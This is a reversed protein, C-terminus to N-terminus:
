ADPKPTLSLWNMSTPRGESCILWRDSDHVVDLERFSSLDRAGTRIIDTNFFRQAAATLKQEQAAGDPFMFAHMEIIMHARRLASLNEPTFLSFEAGEIDSLILCDKPDIGLGALVRPLNGDATGHIKVKNTVANWQATKGIAERGRDSTEFCISQECIGAAALGVGYYGDAAGLNIFYRFKGKLKAIAQLIEQEYLGFLKPTWDGPGWYPDDNIKLGKLPGYRVVGAFSSYFIRACVVRRAEVARLSIDNFMDDIRVEQM